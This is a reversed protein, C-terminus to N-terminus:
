EEKEEMPENWCDQCDYVGVKMRCEECYGICMSCSFPVGTDNLKAKPHKELFDKLRTRQPHETAWQEVIAVAEEPFNRMFNGCFSGSGDLKCSSCNKYTKCMRSKEKLFTVADM